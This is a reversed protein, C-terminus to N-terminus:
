PFVLNGYIRSADRMARLDFTKMDTDPIDAIM